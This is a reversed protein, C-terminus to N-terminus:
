TITKQSCPTPLFKISCLLYFTITVPLHSGTAKKSLRYYADYFMSDFKAETEM